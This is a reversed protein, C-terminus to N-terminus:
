FKSNIRQINTSRSRCIHATERADASSCFFIANGRLPRCSVVYQRLATGLAHEATIKTSRQIYVWGGFM